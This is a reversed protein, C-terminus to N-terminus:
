SLTLRFNNEIWVMSANFLSKLRGHNYCYDKNDSQYRYDNSCILGGCECCFYKKHGNGKIIKM